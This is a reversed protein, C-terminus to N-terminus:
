AALVPLFIHARYARSPSVGFHLMASSAYLIFYIHARYHGHICYVSSCALGTISMFNLCRLTAYGFGALYQNLGHLNYIQVLGIPVSSCQYFPFFALWAPLFPRCIDISLWASALKAWPWRPMFGDRGAAMGAPGVRWASM